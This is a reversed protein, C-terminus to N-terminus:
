GRRPDRSHQDSQDSRWGCEPHCLHGVTRQRSHGAPVPDVQRHPSWTEGYPRDDSQALQIPWGGNANVKWLNSRGSIDTTFVIENGGPSWSANFVSRTFYLDDIPMPRTNPNSASTITNADTIQRTDPGSSQAFSSACALLLFLSLCATRLSKM